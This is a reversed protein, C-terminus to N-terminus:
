ATWTAAPPGATPAYFLAQRGDLTQPEMHRGPPMKGQIEVTLGDVANVIDKFGEFDVVAYRDVTIGTTREM